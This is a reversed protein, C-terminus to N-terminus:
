PRFYVNDIHLHGTETEEQLEGSADFSASPAFVLGGFRELVIQRAAADSVTFGQEETWNDKAWSPYTFQSLRISFRRPTPTVALDIGFESWIGGWEDTYAPSDLKVRVSRAKDTSLTFVVRDYGSVDAEGDVAIGVGVYEDYAAASPNRTFLFNFLLDANGSLPSETNWLAEYTASEDGYQFVFSPETQASPEAFEFNTVGDISLGADPTEGNLVEEPLDDDVPPGEEILGADLLSQFDTRMKVLLNQLEAVGSEWASADLLIDEEVIPAIQARRKALRANLVDTSLPGKLLDAGIEVFRSWSTQALLDLFPDCRPPTIRTSGDAEWVPRPLCDTPTSNWDPVAPATIWQEPYMYPDFQWFTNDLDWPILHFRPDPGDDHYIYFNHPRYPSYFAMIGDWNKIARDVAIYRLVHELDIWSEMREVFTEPTSGEIAEAFARFASVDAAEENTELAEVFQSDPSETRPWVEKYLNGDAGDPYHAKTYRGDVDEVAIFLGQVEGNIIVRAPVARPGDVGFAAFTEYALFERLKSADGMSAHLNLRKLGDFRANDDYKDFKLKYSLRACEDEYSRVGGNEDWCHHLSYAGKHRLGIEEISVDEFGAGSIEVAAPLYVEENGHEELQNLDPEAVTLHIELVQDETFTLDGPLPDRGDAGGAGGLGAGGTGASSGGTGGSGDAQIGDRSCSLTLAGLIALAFSSKLFAM